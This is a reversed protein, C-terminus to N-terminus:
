MGIIKTCYKEALSKFGLGDVNRSEVKFELRHYESYVRDKTFRVCVM